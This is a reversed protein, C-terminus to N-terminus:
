ETQKLRRRRLEGTVAELLLGSGWRISDLDYSIWFRRESIVRGNDVNLYRQMVSKLIAQSRSEIKQAITPEGESLLLFSEQLALLGECYGAISAERKQNRFLYCFGNESSLHNIYYEIGRIVALKAEKFEEATVLDNMAVSAMARVIMAHHHNDPGGSPGYRKEHFSSCYRWGGDTEQESLVMRFLGRAYEAMSRDGGIGFAESLLVAIEASTNIVEDGTDPYYSVSCVSGGEHWFWNHYEICAQAASVGAEVLSPIDLIKGVRLLALGLRATNHACSMPSSAEKILSKNRWMAGHISYPHSWCLYPGDEAIALAQNCFQSLRDMTHFESAYGAQLLNLHSQILHWFTTPTISKPVYLMRRLLTPAMLETLRLFIWFPRLIGSETFRFLSHSLIDSPDYRQFGKKYIREEIGHAAHALYDEGVFEQINKLSM